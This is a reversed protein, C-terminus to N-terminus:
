GVVKSVFRATPTLFDASITVHSHLGIVSRLLECGEGFIKLNILNPPVLIVQDYQGSGLVM